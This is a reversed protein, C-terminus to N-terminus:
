PWLDLVELAQEAPRGYALRHEEAIARGLISWAPLYERIKQLGLKNKDIRAFHAGIVSSASNLVCSM